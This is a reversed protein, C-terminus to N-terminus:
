FLATGVPLRCHLTRSGNRHERCHWAINCNNFLRQGTPTSYVRENQALSLLVDAWRTEEGAGDCNSFAPFPLISNFSFILAPFGRVTGEQISFETAPVIKDL